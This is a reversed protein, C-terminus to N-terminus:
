KSDHQKGRRNMEKINQYIEMQRSTYRIQESRAFFKPKEIEHLRNHEQVDRIKLFELLLLAHQKKIKMYPIVRELYEIVDKRKGVVWEYPIKWNSIIAKYVKRRYYGIGTSKSFYEMLEMSTNSISVGYTFYWGRYSSEKHKRLFVTGEGDIMAAHYICDDHNIDKM